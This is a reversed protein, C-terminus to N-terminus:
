LRKVNRKSQASSVLPAAKSGRPTRFLGLRCSSSGHYEAQCQTCCVFGCSLRSCDARCLDPDFRAPSGCRRCPKLAEHHKVTSAAEQFERFRTKKSTSQSQRCPKQIPTSALHRTFSGWSGAIGSGRNLRKAGKEARHDSCIIRRWTKSVKKCNVLDDDGLLRLIKTLIHKMDKKLLAQLVDVHHLGM